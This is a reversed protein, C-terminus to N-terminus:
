FDKEYNHTNASLISLCNNASVKDFGYSYM